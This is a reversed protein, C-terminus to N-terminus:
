AIRLFWPTLHYKSFMNQKFLPHADLREGCVDVTGVRNVRGLMM